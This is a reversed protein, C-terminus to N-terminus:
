CIISFDVSIPNTASYFRHWTKYSTGAPGVWQV